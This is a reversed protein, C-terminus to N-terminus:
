SLHSGAFTPALSPVVVAAATKYSAIHQSPPAVPCSLPAQSTSKSPAEPPAACFAEINMNCYSEFLETEMCPLIGEFDWHNWEALLCLRLAMRSDLTIFSSSPTPFSGYSSWLVSPFFVAPTFCIFFATLEAIQQRVLCHMLCPM